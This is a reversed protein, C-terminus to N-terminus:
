DESDDDSGEALKITLQNSPSLILTKVKTKILNIHKLAPLKLITKLSKSTIGTYSLNLNELALLDIGIAIMGINTIKTGSLSLYTLKKFQVVTDVLGKDTIQTDGM